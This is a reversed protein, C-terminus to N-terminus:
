HMLYNCRIFIDDNMLMSHKELLAMLRVARFPKNEELMREEQKGQTIQAQLMEMVRHLVSGCAHTCLAGTQM